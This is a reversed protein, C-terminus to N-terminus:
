LLPLDGSILQEARLMNTLGLGVVSLFRLSARSTHLWAERACNIRQEGGGMSGSGMSGSGMGGFGAATGVPTRLSVGESVM